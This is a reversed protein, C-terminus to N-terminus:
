THLGTLLLMFVFLVAAVAISIYTTKVVCDSLVRDKDM